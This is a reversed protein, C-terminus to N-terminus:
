LLDLVDIVIRGKRAFRSKIVADTTMLEIVTLACDAFRFTASGDTCSASVAYAFALFAVSLAKCFNLLRIPAPVCDPVFKAM